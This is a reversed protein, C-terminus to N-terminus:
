DLTPPYWAGTAANYKWSHHKLLNREANLFGATPMLEGSSDRFSDYIPNGKRMEARLRGANRKWNARPSGQNSFWFFFDGENWGTAKTSTPRNWKYLNLGGHRAENASKGADCAIDANRRASCLADDAKAAANDLYKAMKGAGRLAKTAGAPVFPILAAAADLVLDGQGEEILSSNETIYGYAIKGGDYLINGVDWITDWFRGDPDVATTPANGVYTYLGIGGNEEIPDQNIWRQLNPDYYRFGFYSLGSPSHFEKSSFRMRNAEALPGALGQLNGFPDYRYLTLELNRADLIATVNGSGDAHYYFHDTGAASHRSMAILGGIGGAQDLGGSLDPGRTYTVRPRNDAGREQLVLLGAYVYRTEDIQVWQNTQWTKERLIRRRGFADYLFESLTSDHVGNTVIVAVLQNRDDYTFLRRGDRVLNGDADYAFASSDPLSVTLTDTASRGLSDRAVATLTTPSSPLSLNPLAFTRDQYLTATQGNVTVNTAAPTTMGAVVTATTRTAAALQNILDLSLNVTSAGNQRSVLNGAADYRYTFQEHQRATRDAEFGRAAVLQGLPDYAYDLTSGEAFTQRTRQHAPDYSYRHRNLLTGQLNSIDTGLLRGLEDHDQTITAGDSRSISAVLPQAGHYTYTFDGAPSVLEALRGDSDYAFTQIWYPSGPQSLALARLALSTDRGFILTDDPWPGDENALVGTQDWAFCTTGIADTATRLRGVADYTFHLDATTPSTFDVRTLHGLGDYAYRTLNSRAPTWHAVLQHNADYANTWVVRGAANIKKLPHGFADYTWRTGHRLGDILTILDGAPTYAFQNTAVGRFSTGDLTGQIQRALRGLADYSLLLVSTDTQNTYSTPWPVGPSYGLRESGPSHLETRSILRGLRDYAFEYQAGTPLDLVRPRDMDDYEVRQIPSSPTALTTRLGQHNYAIRLSSITDAVNTPRGLCDYAIRLQPGNGLHIAVPRGDLDHEFSTTHGLPDTITEVTGCDCWTYRTTHGLANTVAIPRRLADCSVTTLNGLRDKFRTRDLLALGGTGETFPVGDPKAYWNSITTGDPYARGTLRGLADWYHTVKLGRADVTLRVRGQQWQFSNTALPAGSSATWVRQTLFGDSAVRNTIRLGVPYAVSVLQRNVPHYTATTSEGLANVANTIQGRFNYAYSRTLIPWLWQDCEPGYVETLRRDTGDYGLWTQRVGVESGNSYTSDIAFPLGWENRQWHVYRVTGDPLREAQQSLWVTHVDNLADYHYTYWRRHGQAIGDPSPARELLLRTGLRPGGGTITMNWHRWRALRYHEPDFRPWDNTVLAMQRSNWFFSSRQNLPGVTVPEPVEEDVRPCDSDYAPVCSDDLLEHYAYAQREGNPLTVGISRSIPFADLGTEISWTRFRTMGYPTMMASLFGDASYRFANTIGAVDVIRILNGNTDYQFRAERGYPDRVATVFRPFQLNTYSLESVKGDYDIVRALRIVAGSASYEFRIVRGHPDAKESLLHLTNTETGNFAQAYRNDCFSRYSVTYSVSGDDHVTSGVLEGRAGRVSGSTVGDYRRKGGGPVRFTIRQDESMEFYSLWSCEWANGFGFVNTSVPSGRQKYRLVLPMIRGDSMTYYLPIDKVWLNVFPESVRWVPMGRGDCADEGHGPPCAEPLPCPTIEGPNPAEPDIPQYSIEEDTPCEEDDDDYPTPPYSRQGGQISGAAELSLPSWHADLDAALVLGYGSAHRDLWATDCWVKGGVRPDDLLLRTGARAIVASFHGTRWHMISPVTWPGPRVRRVSKLPLGAAAAARELDDLTDASGVSGLMALSAPKAGQTRVVRALANLAYLGCSPNQAAQALPACTDPSGNRPCPLPVSVSAAGAFTAANLLVHAGALALRYFQPYLSM